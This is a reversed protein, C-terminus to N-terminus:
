SAPNYAMFLYLAVVFIPFQQKCLDPRIKAFSRRRDDAPFDAIIQLIASAAGVAGLCWPLRM